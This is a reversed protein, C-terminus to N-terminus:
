STLSPLCIKEHSTRSCSTYSSSCQNSLGKSYFRKEHQMSMSNVVPVTMCCFWFDNLHTWGNKNPKQVQIHLQAVIISPFCRQLSKLHGMCGEHQQKQWDAELALYWFIYICKCTLHLRRAEAGQQKYIALCCFNKGTGFSYQFESIDLHQTATIALVVIDADVTCISIKNGTNRYNNHTHLEVWQMNVILAYAYCM